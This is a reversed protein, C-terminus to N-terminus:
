GSLPAAHYGFLHLLFSPLEGKEFAAASHTTSKAIDIVRQALLDNPNPISLLRSIQIAVHHVFEPEM